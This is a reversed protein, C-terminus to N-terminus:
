YLWVAKKQMHVNFPLQFLEEHIFECKVNFIFLKGEM